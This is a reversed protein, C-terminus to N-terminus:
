VKARAALEQRFSTLDDLRDGHLSALVREDDVDAYGHVLLNRFRAMAALSTALDDRLWGGRRLQEFVAAFTAPAQMGEAAIVHQGADIAAEAAIVFLYKVSNLRDPDTLVESPDLARLRRLESEADRVRDLLRRLRAADVM